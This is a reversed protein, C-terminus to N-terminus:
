LFSFIVLVTGVRFDFEVYIENLNKKRRYINFNTCTPPQPVPMPCAPPTILESFHFFRLFLVWEIILNKMIKM